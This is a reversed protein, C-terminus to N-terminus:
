LDKLSDIERRDRKTPRGTGRDRKEFGCLRAMQIREYEQPPTLDEVYNNVLAAGVRNALLEKVRISRHLQDISLSYVEGIRVVHSAKLPQEDMKVRGSRCADSSLTRTKFLRIAWLFKDLRIPENSSM